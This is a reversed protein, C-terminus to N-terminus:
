GALRATLAIWVARTVARARVIALVVAKARAIAKSIARSLSYYVTPGFLLPLGRPDVLAAFFV